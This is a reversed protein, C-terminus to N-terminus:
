NFNPSPNQNSCLSNVFKLLNRTIEHTNKPREPFKLWHYNNTDFGFITKIKFCNFAFILSPYPVRCNLDLLKPIISPKQYCSLKSKIMFARSNVLFKLRQLKKLKYLTQNTSLAKVCFLITDKKLNISEFLAFRIAAKDQSNYHLSIGQDNITIGCSDM